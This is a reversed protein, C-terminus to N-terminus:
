NRHTSRQLSKRKHRRKHITIAVTLVILVFLLSIGTPFEPVIAYQTSEATLEYRDVYPVRESLVIDFMAKQGPEIDRPDSYNFETEVIKGTEDYYTGIVKVDTAKESGINKIEGTVHMQGTDDIYSSSSLIELGVPLPSTTWICPTCPNLVYRDVLTSQTKNLLVIEFPSKRGVLLVKLETWASNEAIIEETYGLSHIFTAEIRVHTIAENGTNQIEGVVHYYGSSDLYGTHSVITVDVVANVPSVFDASAAFIGLLMVAVFASGTSLKM